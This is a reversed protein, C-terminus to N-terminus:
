DGQTGSWVAIERRRPEPAPLAARELIGQLTILEEDTLQELDLDGRVDVAQLPRGHGRDLLAVAASIRAAAPAKPDKMIAGLTDIADQTLKRAADKVEVFMRRDITLPQKPRGSPNGSQGPRFSTSRRGGRPMEGADAQETAQNLLRKKQKSRSHRAPCFAPPSPKAAYKKVGFEPARPTKENEEECAQGGQRKPRCHEVAFVRM